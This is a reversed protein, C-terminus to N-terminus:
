IFSSFRRFTPLIIVFTELYCSPGKVDRFLRRCLVLAIYLRRISKLNQEPPLMRPSGKQSPLQVGGKVM